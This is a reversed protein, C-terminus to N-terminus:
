RSPIFKIPNLLFFMGLLFGADGIRNVIFAKKGADSASKKEYWFGILLYSSLGVLEWFIFIMMLNDAIVIGNMSFTFLGLYAFYRSYRPDGKMYETSYLHVLFSCFRIIANIKKSLEQTVGIALSGTVISVVTIIVTNQIGWIVRSLVDRGKFDTGILHDLSPAQRIATYDQENYGYPAIYPAFIGVVYIFVILALCIMALKKESLRQFARSFHGQSRYETKSSIM